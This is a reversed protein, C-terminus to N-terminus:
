IRAPGSRRASAAAACTRLREATAAMGDVAGLEEISSRAFASCSPSLNCRPALRPSVWRQYGGITFLLLRQISREGGPVSALFTGIAALSLFGLSLDCGGCGGCSDCADCGDLDPMDLDCCLESSELGCGAAETM